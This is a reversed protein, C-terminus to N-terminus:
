CPKVDGNWFRARRTGVKAWLVFEIVGLIMVIHFKDYHYYAKECPKTLGEIVAALGFLGVNRRDM